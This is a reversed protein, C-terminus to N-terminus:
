YVRTSHDQMWYIDKNNPQSVNLKLTTTLPPYTRADTWKHIEAHGDAFAFAAAQVTIAPLITLWSPRHCTRSAM